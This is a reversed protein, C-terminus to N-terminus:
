EPLYVTMTAPIDGYSKIKLRGGAETTAALEKVYAQLAETTPEQSTNEVAVGIPMIIKPEIRRTLQAAQHSNLGVVGDVIPLLLVDVMGLAELQDDDLEAPGNGLVGITVGSLQIRYNTVSGEGTYSPVAMGVVAFPGVEYEGPGELRPKDGVAPQLLQLLTAIQVADKLESSKDANRRTSPDVWLTETKTSIKVSSGGSPIIEFM